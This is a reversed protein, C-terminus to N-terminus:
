RRGSGFMANDIMSTDIISTPINRPENSTQKNMRFLNQALLNNQSETGRYANGFMMRGIQVRQQTTFNTGALENISQTDADSWATRQPVTRQPAPRNGPAPRNNDPTDRNFVPIVREDIYVNNKDYKGWADDIVKTNRVVRSNRNNSNPRGTANSDINGTPIYEFEGTLNNFFREQNSANGGESVYELKGTLNNFFMAQNSM